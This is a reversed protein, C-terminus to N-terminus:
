GPPKRSSQEVQDLKELLDLFTDPIAEQEVSTYLAKLKSAIQNNPDALGRPRGGM